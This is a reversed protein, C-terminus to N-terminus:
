SWRDWRKLARTPSKARGGEYWGPKTWIEFHLHCGRADGTDSEIGIQQGAAFRSGQPPRGRKRMHMYVYDQGTGRGDVVVYYGAASQHKHTQIRGARAAVVRSGCKAFIDQGQHGRGAGFGDGYSHRAPLPFRHSYFSFRTSKSGHGMSARQGASFVKFAYKGQPIYGRKAKHGDWPVRVRVGPKVAGLPFRRVVDRNRVRVVKVLLKRTQKGALEFRFALGRRAGRIIRSRNVRAEVILPKATRAAAGGQRSEPRDPASGTAATPDAQAGGRAAAPDASALAVAVGARSLLAVVIGARRHIRGARTSSEDIPMVIRDRELDSGARTAVSYNNAVEL